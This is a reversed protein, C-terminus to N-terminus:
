LRRVRARLVEQFRLLLPFGVNRRRAEAVVDMVDISLAEDEFPRVAVHGKDNVVFFGDSWVNIRYLEAADAVTWADARDADNRIDAGAVSASSKTATM